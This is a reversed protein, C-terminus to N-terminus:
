DDEKELYNFNRYDPVKALDRAYEIVKDQAGPTLQRFVFQLKGLNYMDLTELPLSQENTFFSEKTNYELNVPLCGLAKAIVVMCEYRPQRKGTEYQRITNEALGSRKALEKQTLGLEKRYLMINRGINSVERNEQTNKTDKAEKM